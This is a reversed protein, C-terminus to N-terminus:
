TMFDPSSHMMYRDCFLTNESIYQKDAETTASGIEKGGDDYWKVAYRKVHRIKHLDSSGSMEKMTWSVNYGIGSREVRIDFPDNEM